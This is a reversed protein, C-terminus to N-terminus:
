FPIRVGAQVGLEKGLKKLKVFAEADRQKLFKHSFSLNIGLSEQRKNLLSFTIEDRRNLHALAGFELEQVKDSGYDMQFILGLNRSFKWTGYLSIIKEQYPKEKRLGVGIRYKIVGQEPYVNPSELQVRFDFVSGLSHAFVYALRNASNIQWSGNFALTQLRKTKTLLDVKQYTYSIQQNENIQWLGKLTLTDPSDEKKVQFALRSYADAQWFGALKLIQLHSLGKKDRSSMGFVLADGDVSIIEGKLDLVDGNEGYRAKRLNLELDYNENLQWNGIFAIKDALKYQRRWSIPENLWYYLRNDKSLSFMGEPILRKNKHRIILCNYSNLSYSNVAAKVKRM